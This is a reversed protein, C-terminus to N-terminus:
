RLAGNRTDPTSWIKTTVSSAKGRSTGRMSSCRGEDVLVLNNGEFADVAVTKDGMEDGLRTIEIIEVTGRAPSQSKNFYQALGFGSEGLEMLHQTSLGENPTLLIIKDPYVGAVGSSFYHLYQKINVHLLLTKGSGTANWFAVKNLDEAEFERFPEGGESRYAEMVENLGDLLDQRKNFYWDLYIETFLLSLYQFYTMQLEHGERKNRQETIAQWHGVINRISRRAKAVRSRNKEIFGELEHISLASMGKIYRRFGSIFSIGQKSQLDLRWLAENGVGSFGLTTLNASGILARNEGAYMKAHAFKGAYMSVDIGRSTLGKVADCLAVPDISGSVWDILNEQDLRVALTVRQADIRLKKLPGATYYATALLAEKGSLGLDEVDKLIPGVLMQSM